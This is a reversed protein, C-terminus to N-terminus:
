ADLQKIYERYAARAAEDRESAGLTKKKADLETRQHCSEHEMQEGAHAADTALVSLPPRPNCRPLGGTAGTLWSAVTQNEQLPTRPDSQPACAGTSPTTQSLARYDSSQSGVGACNRQTPDRSGGRLVRERLDQSYAKM